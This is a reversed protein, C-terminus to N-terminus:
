PQMGQDAATLIGIIILASTLMCSRVLSCDTSVHRVNGSSAENKYPKRQGMSASKPPFHVELHAAHDPIGM